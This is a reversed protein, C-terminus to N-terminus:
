NANILAFEDLGKHVHLGIVRGPNRERKYTFDGLSHETLLLRCVRLEAQNQKCSARNASM